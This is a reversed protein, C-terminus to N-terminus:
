FMKVLVTKLKIALLALIDRKYVFFVNDKSTMLKPHNKSLQM